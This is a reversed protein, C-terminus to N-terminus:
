LASSVTTRLSAHWPVVLREVLTVVWFGVAGIVALFVVGAILTASDGIGQAKLIVYGLGSSGVIFEGVVAGIVASTWTIRLGAFLAPLASPFRILRFVDFTSAGMSRALYLKEIEISRLGTLTTVLVPFYGFLTIVVLKPTNEFGWWVIFLPTLAILPVFQTAVLLPFVGLEFARVTATLAAIALGVAVAIAFGALILLVTDIAGQHVESSHVVLHGVDGLSPWLYPPADGVTVWLHWALVVAGVLGIPYLLELRRRRRGRRANREVVAALESRRGSAGVGGGPPLPPTPNSARAGM